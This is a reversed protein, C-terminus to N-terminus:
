ETRPKFYFFVYLPPVAPSMPAMAENNASARRREKRETNWKM